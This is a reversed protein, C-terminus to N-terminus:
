FIYQFLALSVKDNTNLNAVFARPFLNHFISHMKLCSVQIKNGLEPPLNKGGQGRFDWGACLVWPKVGGGM